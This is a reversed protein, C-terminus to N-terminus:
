IGGRDGVPELEFEQDEGIFSEVMQSRGIMESVEEGGIFFIYIFIYIFEAGDELRVELGM